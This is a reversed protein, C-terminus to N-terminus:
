STYNRNRLLLPGFILAYLVRRLTKVRMGSIVAFASVMWTWAMGGCCVGLAMTQWYFRYDDPPTHM